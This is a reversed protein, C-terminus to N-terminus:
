ASSPMRSRNVDRPSPSTYLLCDPSWMAINDKLDEIIKGGRVSSFDIYYKEEIEQNDTFLAKGPNTAQYFTKVNVSM